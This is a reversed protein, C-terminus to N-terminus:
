AKPRRIGDKASTYAAFWCAAVSIATTLFLWTAVQPQITIGALDDKMLNLFVLPIIALLSVTLWTALKEVLKRLEYYPQSM